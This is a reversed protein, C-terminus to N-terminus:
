LGLLNLVNTAGNVLGSTLLEPFMPILMNLLGAPLFGLRLLLTVMTVVVELLVQTVSALNGSSASKLVATIGGIITAVLSAITFAIDALTKSGSELLDDLSANEDPFI